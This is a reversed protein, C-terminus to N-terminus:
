DLRPFDRSVIIKRDQLIDKSMVGDFDKLYETILFKAAGVQAGSFQFAENLKDYIPLFNKETFGKFDKEFYKTLYEFVLVQIAQEYGPGIGGMEITTVCANNKWKNVAEKLNDM